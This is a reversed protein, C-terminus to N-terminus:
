SVKVFTIEYLFLINAFFSCPFKSILKGKTYKLKESEQKNLMVSFTKDRLSECWLSPFKSIKFPKHFFSNLLSICSFLDTFNGDFCYNSLSIVCM